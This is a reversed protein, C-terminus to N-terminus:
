EEIEDVIHVSAGGVAIRILGSRDRAISAKGFHVRCLFHSLKQRPGQQSIDLRVSFELEEVLFREHANQHLHREVGWRRLTEEAPRDIERVFPQRAGQASGHRM